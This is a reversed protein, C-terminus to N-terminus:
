VSAIVGDSRRAMKHRVRHNGICARCLDHNARDFDALKEAWDPELNCYTEPHKEMWLDLEETVAPVMPCAYMVGDVLGYGECGCKAPLVGQLPEKPIPVHRTRDVINVKGKGYRSLISALVNVNEEYRSLRLTSVNEMLEPTVAETNLGNSFVNVAKALGSEKLLKVGEELNDWM